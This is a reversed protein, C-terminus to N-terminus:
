PNTIRRLFCGKQIKGKEKEEVVQAQSFDNDTSTIRAKGIFAGPIRRESGSDEDKIVKGPWTDSHQGVTCTQRLEQFFM